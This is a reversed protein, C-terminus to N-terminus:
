VSTRVSGPLGVNLSHLSNDVARGFPNICTSTAKTGAFDCTSDSLRFHINLSQKLLRKKNKCVAKAARLMLAGGAYIKQPRPAANIQM